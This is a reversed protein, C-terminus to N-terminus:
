RARGTSARPGGSSRGAAHESHWAEAPVPTVAASPPPPLSHYTSPDQHVKLAMKPLWQKMAKKCGAGRTMEAMKVERSATGVKRQKAALMRVGNDCPTTASSARTGGGGEQAKRTGVPKTPRPPRKEKLKTPRMMTSGGTARGAKHWKSAGCARQVLVRLRVWQWRGRYGRRHPAKAAAQTNNSIGGMKWMQQGRLFSKGMATEIAISWARRTVQKQGQRRCRRTASSTQMPEQQGVETGAMPAWSCAKWAGPLRRLGTTRCGITNDKQAAGHPLQTPLSSNSRTASCRRPKWPTPQAIGCMRWHMRWRIRM